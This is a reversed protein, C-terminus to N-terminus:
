TRGMAGTLRSGGAQDAGFNLKGTGAGIPATGVQGSWAKAGDLYVTVLGSSDRTVALRVFQGKPVVVPTVAAAGGGIFRVNRTPTLDIIFGTTGASGPPQIYDVIRQYTGEADARFETNVSFESLPGFNPATASVYTTGNLTVAPGTPGTTYAPTGGQVTANTSNGSADYVTQGSSPVWDVMPASAADCYVLELKTDPATSNGVPNLCMESVPNFLRGDSNIQWVQSPKGAVCGQLSLRTRAATAPANLCFKGDGGKGRINGTASDYTWTQSLNNNCPYLTAEYNEVWNNGPINLCNGGLLGVEGWLPAAWTQEIQGPYCDWMLPEITTSDLTGIRVSLCKDWAPNYLMGQTDGQAWKQKETGNCTYIVINAGNAVTTGYPEICKGKLQLEGQPTFVVDQNTTGNCGTMFVPTNDATAGFALDLCKTGTAGGLKVPGPRMGKTAPTPLTDAQSVPGFGVALAAALVSVGAFKMTKAM